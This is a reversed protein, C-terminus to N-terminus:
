TLILIAGDILPSTGAARKGFGAPRLGSAVDFLGRDKSAEKRANQRKTLSVPPARTVSRVAVRHQGSFV